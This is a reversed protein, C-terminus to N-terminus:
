GLELAGVRWRGGEAQLRLALARVRRGDTVVVSVECVAPAPECVHLSRVTTRTPRGGARQALAHRRTLAAQVSPTTWRLVQAPPRLGAAVELAVQAFRRAWERPDPLGDPRAPRPAAGRRPSGAPPAFPLEAQGPPPAGEGTPPLVGRAPRPEAVPIPRLRLVPLDASLDAPLDAPLDALLTM